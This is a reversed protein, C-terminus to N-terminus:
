VSGLLGRLKERIESDLPEEGNSFPVNMYARKYGADLLIRRNEETNAGVRLHGNDDIFALIGHNDYFTGVQALRQVPMNFGDTNM